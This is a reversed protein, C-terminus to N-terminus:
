VALDRALVEVGGPVLEHDDLGALVVVGVDVLEVALDESEVRCGFCLPRGAIGGLPGFLRVRQRAVVDVFQLQQAVGVHRMGIFEGVEEEDVPSVLVGVDHTDVLLEQLRAHPEGRIELLDRVLQRLGLGYAGQPFSFSPRPTRRVLRLARARAPMMSSADLAATGARRRDAADRPSRNHATATAMEVTGARATEAAPSSNM